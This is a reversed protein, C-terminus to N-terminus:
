LMLHLAFFLYQIVPFIAMSTIEAFETFIAINAFNEQLHINGHYLM